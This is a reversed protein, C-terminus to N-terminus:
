RGVNRGGKCIVKIVIRETGVFVIVGVTERKWGLKGAQREKGWVKDRCIKKRDEGFVSM